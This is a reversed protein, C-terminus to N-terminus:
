RNILNRFELKKLNNLYYLVDEVDTDEIKKNRFDRNLEIEFCVSGHSPSYGYQCTVGQCVFREYNKCGFYERKLVKFGDAVDKIAKLLMEETDGCGYYKFVGKISIFREANKIRDINYDNVLLEKQRLLEKELSQFKAETTKFNESEKKFEARANSIELEIQKLSGM